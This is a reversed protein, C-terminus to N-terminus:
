QEKGRWFEPRIENENEPPNLTIHPFGAIWAQFEADDAPPPTDPPDPSAGALSVVAAFETINAPFSPPPKLKLDTLEIRRLPGDPGNDIEEFSLPNELERDGLKFLRGDPEPIQYYVQGPQKPPTHRRYLSNLAQKRM